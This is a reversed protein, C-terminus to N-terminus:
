IYPENSYDLTAGKPDSYSFRLILSYSETKFVLITKPNCSSVVPFAKSLKAKITEPM